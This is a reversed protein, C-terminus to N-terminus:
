AEGGTLAAVAAAGAARGAEIARDIQHFEFLGIGRTDPTVTVTARRRAEDAATASGMLISRLLTEPLTPMRPPRGSHRLPAAASINVAVIPGEEPDLAAVPLNDLIGGDVHLTNAVRTPPLLAPLSLSARVADRVLGRRHTVTTHALMDTSVLALQRPLEEFHLDSFRRELASDVRRGRTLAIRPFTIDGLPNRRVFEDYCAADVAAADVGTAYLAAICAGVSCGAIRDVRVGASELEALVGIAALARAGGGALTLGISRGTLRDALEVAVAAIDEQQECTFSRKPDLADHWDLLTQRAVPGGTYVLYCPRDVALTSTAGGDAVVIARDAQRICFDRWTGNDVHAVLLVRDHSREARDLGEADIQDPAALTGRRGLERVLAQRLQDINASPSASVLAVVRTARPPADVLARSNQLQIALARILAHQTDADAVLNAEFESSGIRLLTSDRRARVTASRTTGALLGLEGVVADPGIERVLDGDVEVQLRGAIVIYAADSNEGAEFLTSGAPIHCQTARELLRKRAEDPLSRFLSTAPQPSPAAHETPTWSGEISPALEAQDHEPVQEGGRGLLLSGCAAVTFCAASFLWGHRLRDVITAATPTGVIVVLLAIGLVGGLQRASTVISSATAFRGGPVAALGAGAVVPLTAGVGLGSLVQGPLWQGLFDPHTGVQRAYWVYAGAWVLAGPVAVLRAGHQDAVRGFFGAAAAAVVAAPAVALGSILLSWGWVYHLWLINNLLYAYFGVGAVLSVASAATFSRIRLLAPDLVPVPHRISRQFFLVGTVAAVAFAALVRPSTWGWDGGQVIALTLAAVALTLLGAGALDPLTRRGPARSEVLARKAAAIAALGLPVNILFALRWGDLAVLAGGLPPGLGAAAAASAGWIGIAHARRDTPFAAIVLALSAPVLFASGTAQVGRAAILWGVSPAAACVASAVTFLGIGLTFMRRRGLLDALRGAPVLLAAFVINYANLVWSLTGLSSGAFSARINPFAVNVITVDLFALLAGLSAVLLAARPNLRRRSGISDGVAAAASSGASM